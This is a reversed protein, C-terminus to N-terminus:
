TPTRNLPTDTGDVSDLYPAVLSAVAGVNEPMFLSRHTGEAIIVTLKGTVHNAWGYTDDRTVWEASAKVLLVNCSYTKRRYRSAVEAFHDNLDVFGDYETYIQRIEANAESEEGIGFKQKQRQIMDKTWPLVSRPGHRVMNRGILRYRKILPVYLQDLTDFLVVLGARDGQEELIRSMELAVMGGGSYGGILYPGKPQAVRISEVYRAAMQEITTDPEYNGDAGKAVLGIM